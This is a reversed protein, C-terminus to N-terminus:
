SFVAPGIENTFFILDEHDEGEGDVLREPYNVRNRLKIDCSDTTRWWPIGVFGFRKTKM